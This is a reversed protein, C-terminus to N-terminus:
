RGGGLFQMTAREAIGLGRALMEKALNYGYLASIYRESAEAVAEQAQVVELNNAVGATFRDRAQTLQENSLDRARTAVELQEGSAQLDLFATRVDYYISARLDEAEARRRRLEAEAEILRGRTRGGNFIPVSVAGVLTYTSHADGPTLGIAGYDANVQVSPLWEGAVARRASDAARIRELAAQYDPRTKYAQELAADLSLDPAPGFPLDDVLTFVQGLPLGIVRALQLKTKEFENRAATARQRATALQVEARLVDIRAVLGSDKLNSAQRFTAEATQMQARSADTRASAALAQLYLSSSVLVVLDRASKVDYQVAALNHRKARVSHIAEMNLISQSVYVRADFVNFPGVISPVGAPLPFGFAALNVVQRSERVHGNVQPLLDALATWQAGRASEVNDSANLLALNHQLGRAIADVITLALPESSPTGAPVGGLWQGSIQVAARPQATATTAVLLLLPLLFRM